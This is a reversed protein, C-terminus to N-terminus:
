EYAVTMDDVEVPLEFEYLNEFDLNKDAEVLDGFPEGTYLDQCSELGGYTHEFGYYDYYMELNEALCKYFHVNEKNHQWESPMNGGSMDIPQANLYKVYRYSSRAMEYDSQIMDVQRRSGSYEHEYACDILVQPDVGAATLSNCVDEFRVKANAIFTGCRYRAQEDKWPFSKVEFLMGESIEQWHTLQAGLHALGMIHDVSMEGRKSQLFKAEYAAKNEAHYKESIPTMREIMSKKGYMLSDAAALYYEHDMYEQAAKTRKEIEAKSSDVKQIM